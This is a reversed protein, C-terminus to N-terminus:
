EALALKTKSLNLLTGTLAQRQACHLDNRLFRVAHIDCHKEGPLTAPLCADLVKHFLIPATSLVAAAYLCCVPPTSQETLIQLAILLNICTLRHKPDIRLM